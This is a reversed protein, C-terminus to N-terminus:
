TISVQVLADARADAARKDDKLRELLRQLEKAAAAAEAGSATEAALQVNWCM